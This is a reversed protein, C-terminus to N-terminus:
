SPVAQQPSGDLAPASSSESFHVETISDAIRIVQKSHQSLQTGLGPIVVHSHNIATSLTGISIHQPFSVPKFLQATSKIQHDSNVGHAACTVEAQHNCYAKFIHLSTANYSREKLGKGECIGACTKFACTRVSAVTHKLQPPAM